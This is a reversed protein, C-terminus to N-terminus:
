FPKLLVINCYSATTYISQQLEAPKVVKVGKLTLNVVEPHQPIVPQKNQAFLLTPVFLLPFRPTRSRSFTETARGAERKGSGEERRCDKSCRTTARRLRSASSSGNWPPVPRCRNYVAASPTSM